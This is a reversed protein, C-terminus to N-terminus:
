TPLVSISSHYWEIVDRTEQPCNKGDFVQVVEDKLALCKARMQGAGDCQAEVLAVEILKRLTVKEEALYAYATGRYGMESSQADAWARACAWARAYDEAQGMINDITAQLRVFEAADCATCDGLWEGDARHVHGSDGCTWCKYKTLDIASM